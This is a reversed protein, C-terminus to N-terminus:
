RNLHTKFFLLASGWSMCGRLLVKCWEMKSGKEQAVERTLPEGKFQIVPSFCCQLSDTEVSENGWAQSKPPTLPPWSTSPSPSNSTIIWIAGLLSPTPLLCHWGGENGLQTGQHSARCVPLCPHRERVYTRAAAKWSHRSLPGQKCCTRVGVHM